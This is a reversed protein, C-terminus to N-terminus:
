EKEAENEAEIRAAAAEQAQEMEDYLANIVANKVKVDSLSYKVFAEYGNSQIDSFKKILDDADPEFDSRYEKVGEVLEGCVRKLLEESQEQTQRLVEPNATMEAIQGQISDDGMVAQVADGDARRRTAEQAAAQMYPSADIAARLRETYAADTMAGRIGISFQRDEAMRDRVENGLAEDGYAQELVRVYGEVGDVAIEVTAPLSALPVVLTRRPRVASTAAGSLPSARRWSSPARDRRAASCSCASASSASAFMESARFATQAPEGTKEEATRESIHSTDILSARSRTDHQRHARNEWDNRKKASCLSPKSRGDPM